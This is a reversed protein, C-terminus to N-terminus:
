GCTECTESIKDLLRLMEKKSREGFFFMAPYKKSYNELSPPSLLASSKSLKM